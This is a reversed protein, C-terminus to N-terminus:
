ASAGKTFATFHIPPWYMRENVMLYVFEGCVYVDDFYGLVRELPEYETVPGSVNTM